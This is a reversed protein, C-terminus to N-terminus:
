LSQGAPGIRASPTWGLQCSRRNSQGLKIHKTGNQPPPHEIDHKVKYIDTEKLTFHLNALIEKQVKRLLEPNILADIKCHLYPQSEKFAKEIATVSETDLLGPAFKEEPKTDLKVRKSMNEIYKKKKKYIFFSLFFL